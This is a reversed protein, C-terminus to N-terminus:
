DAGAPELALALQIELVLAVHPELAVARRRQDQFIAGVPLGEIEIQAVREDPERARGAPEEDASRRPSRVSSRGRLPPTSSPRMSSSRLRSTQYLRESRPLRLRSRCVCELRARRPEGAARGPR